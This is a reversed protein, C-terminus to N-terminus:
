GLARRLINALDSRRFPKSLLLVGADLRGHHIIANEIYGSMFVVKMDPHSQSAREALQKGNMSGPMVVDTLLLDVKEEALIDLAQKANAASLVAYGLHRLQREITERVSNDDEVVLVRERGNPVPEITEIRDSQAAQGSQPLYIKITTGVGVESYLKIHGLSQKVFGYVMSLGLGSGSGVAKTTFFPDFVKERIAEPIGSGNDSVAIMVHRGAQAEPNQAIYSADFSADNTEITLKGGFPMADRANVALNLLATVLQDPDVLAASIDPKIDVKLEINEPITHNLLGATQRVIENVDTARPQLPQKRAFALLRSTLEAGRAAAADIMDAISKLDPRDGLGDSLIEITGLIVALINNFDHAIGGTLQGIAEMKQAQRLARDNQKQRSIDRVIKTAGILKGSPAPVPSVSLSVDILNGDKSKRVTEFHEIREGDNLRHLISREEDQKDDPIIILIPQGVAELATFGFIREAAANWSTIIGDLTKTIIADDSFEIAALLLIETESRDM